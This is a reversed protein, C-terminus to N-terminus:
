EGEGILVPQVNLGNVYSSNPSMAVRVPQSLDGPRIVYILGRHHFVAEASFRRLRNEDDTFWINGQRTLATEPVCLLDPVDRGTLEVRVFTGPFLPPNQDLPNKVELFLTRLRSDPDLHRSVRVPEAIWTAGQEPDHLQAGTLRLENTLRSWQHADLHVGVEVADMGFIVVVDEGTFLTDGLRVPKGVIVGDHPARIDTNDLVRQAHSVAALAANVNNRAVVLQPVHLVLPSAPNETIGSRKWNLRAEGAESEAVLLAAKMEALRSRAEALQMEYESKELTILVENAAVINGIRLRNSISIVHGNVQAKVISERVPVVEGLVNVRAKHTRAFVERITVPMLTEQPNKVGTATPNDPKVSLLAESALVCVVAVVMFVMTKKVGKRSLFTKMRNIRNM